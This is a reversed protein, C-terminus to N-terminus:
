GYSEATAVILARAASDRVALGDFTEFLQEYVEIEDPDTVTLEAGLTEVLVYAHDFIWFGNLPGVPWVAAFPVIALEVTDLRAAVLLRDLQARMVGPAARRTRLASETLMFRHRRGPRYLAEQRRMRTRVAEDVDDVVGYQEVIGDLVARAYDPTQLLGPVTAPEFARLLTTGAEADLRAQQRARTGSALRQRWRAYDLRALDLGEHLELVTRPDADTAATWAQVDAATPTQQGRELKSVKSHAWGARVALDQGTLGARERAGRLQLGFTRLADHPKAM